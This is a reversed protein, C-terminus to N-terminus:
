VEEFEADVVDGKVAVSDSLMKTVDDPNMQGMLKNALAMVGENDLEAIKLLATPIGRSAQEIEVGQVLMKVATDMKTIDNAKIYEIAKDVMLKGAEAHRNLMEVKQEVAIKEIRQAVEADMIDARLNWNLQDRWKSILTTTPRRGLEDPPILDVLRALPLRGNKFWILFMKEKYTHVFEATLDSRRPENSPM